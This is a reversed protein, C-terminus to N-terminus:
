LLVPWASGGELVDDEFAREGVVRLGGLLCSSSASLNQSRQPKALSTIRLLCLAPPETEGGAGHAKEIVRLSRAYAKEREYHERM